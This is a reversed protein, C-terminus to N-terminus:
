MKTTQLSQYELLISGKIYASTYRVNTAAIVLVGEDCVCNCSAVGVPLLKEESIANRM